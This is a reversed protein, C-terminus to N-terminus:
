PMSPNRSQQQNINPLRLPLLYSTRICLKPQTPPAGKLINFSKINQSSLYKFCNLVTINRYKHGTVEKRLHCKFRHIVQDEYFM